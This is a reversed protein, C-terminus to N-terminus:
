SSSKEMLKWKDLLKKRWNIIIWLLKYSLMLSPISKRGEKSGNKHDLVELLSQPIMVLLDKITDMMSGEMWSEMMYLVKNSVQSDEKCIVIKQPYKSLPM